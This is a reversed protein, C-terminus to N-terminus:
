GMSNGAPWLDGEGQGSPPRRAGGKFLGGVVHRCGYSGEAVCPLTGSIM